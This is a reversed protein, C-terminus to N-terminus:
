VWFMFLVTDCMFNAAVNVSRKVQEPVNMRRAREVTKKGILVPSFLPLIGLLEGRTSLNLAYSVPANSYGPEAVRTERDDRLIEYYRYLSQLIM